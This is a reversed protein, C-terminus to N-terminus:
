DEERDATIFPLNDNEQKGIYENYEEKVKDELWVLFGGCYVLTSAIDGLKSKLLVSNCYEVFKKEVQEIESPFLLVNVGKRSNKKKKKFGGKLQM